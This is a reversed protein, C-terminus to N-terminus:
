KILLIKKATSSKGNFYLKVIYVGSPMPNSQDDMGNWQTQHRGTGQPADYLTKINRGLLDFMCLKVTGKRFTSYRINVNQNFPNPYCTMDYDEPLESEDEPIALGEVIRLDDIYWGSATGYYDTGIEFRIIVSQSAYETLDFSTMHWFNGEDKGGFGPQNGLFPNHNSIVGPYGETPYALVFSPDEINNSIKVNAGDFFLDGMDYWQWFELRPHEGRNLTIYLDLLWNCTDKYSSDLKTGWCKLGSHAYMPGMTDATDPIGCEWGGFIPTHIVPGCNEEFDNTYIQPALVFNQTTTDQRSISIYAEGPAYEFSTARLNWNGVLVTDIFFFGDYGTTDAIGQGVVEIIAGSDHDMYTLEVHGTVYGFAEILAFDDIYWGPSRGSENSAFHYRVRIEEDRFSSLDFEEKEWGDSAGSYAPMGEIASGEEMDSVPYGGNPIVIFWNIGDNTTIELNGGDQGEDMDYWHWFNMYPYNTGSLAMRPSYLYSDTSNPYSGDITTGFCYPGTRPYGPGPGSPMGWEWCGTDAIDEMFDEATEDFGNYYVPNIVINSRFMIALEDHLVSVDHGHTGYQLGITGTSNEIGIYATRYTSYVPEIDLYQFFIANRRFDLVIEYTCPPYTTGGPYERIQYYEVVLKRDIYEYVVRGGPSDGPDLDMNLIGLVNNPFYSNPFPGVTISSTADTFSVWGNSCIHLQSYGVGYYDFIEPMTISQYSDDYLSLATGTSSIEIWEFIPGSPEDSDVWRYGFEDPGGESSYINISFFILFFITFFVLQKYKM